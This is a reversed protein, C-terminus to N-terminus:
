AVEGTNAHSLPAAHIFYDAEGKGLKRTLYGLAILEKLRNYITKPGANIRAQATMSVLDPVTLRYGTPRTVLYVLIAKAELTLRIDEAIRQLDAVQVAHAM